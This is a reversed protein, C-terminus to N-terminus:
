LVTSFDECICSEGSLGAFVAMDECVGMYSDLRRMHILQLYGRSGLKYPYVGYSEDLGKFDIITTSFHM